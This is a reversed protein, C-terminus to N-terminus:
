AVAARVDEYVEIAEAASRFDFQGHHKLWQSYYAHVSRHCTPCLARLDELVTAIRGLRVASALPLLHHLELICDVWFYTEAVDNGCMDCRLMACPYAEFFARRLARNREVRLHNRRSRSGETFGAQIIETDGVEPFTAKNGTKPLKGLALIENDADAVKAQIVPSALTEIRSLYLDLEDPIVATLESHEWVLFTFQSLFRLLERVERLEDQDFVGEVPKLKNYHTSDEMGTCDNRIVYRVVDEPSISRQGIRIRSVLFRLIACCPYVPAHSPDYESFAPSSYSFVRTFHALYEDVPLDEAVAKGLETLVIRGKVRTAILALSFVRGYNRWVDEYGTKDPKFDMNTASVLDARLPMKVHSSDKGDYRNLATATARLSNYLLYECRGRDWRWTTM